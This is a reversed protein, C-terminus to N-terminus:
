RTFLGKTALQSLRNSQVGRGVQAQGLAGGILGTFHRAAQDPTIIRGSGQNLQRAQVQNVLWSGLRLGRRTL